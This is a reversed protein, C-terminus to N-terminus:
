LSELLCSHTASPKHILRHPSSKKKTRQKYEEYTDGKLNKSWIRKLCNVGMIQRFPPPSLSALKGQPGGGEKKKYIGDM